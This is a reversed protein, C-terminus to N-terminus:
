RSLSAFRLTLIELGRVADGVGTKQRHDIAVSQAFLRAARKPGAKRALAIVEEKATWLRLEAAVANPSVGQQIGRACAHMKRALDMCLYAVPVTADRPGADLLTHLHKLAAEPNAALLRAQSKWVDEERTAGVMEAVLADSIEGGTDLAALSLKELEGHLRGLDDGVRDVLLAAAKTSIRVGIEKAHQTLWAPINAPSTCPIVAGCAEILSDLKGKHWTSARLVLTASESPAVAYREVIPRSDEKVFQDAADVIVMRYPQMLGLSRCDDLVDAPRASAGDHLAVDVGGHAEELAARIRRTLEAQLFLEPGALLIIRWRPDIEVASAGQVPKRSTRAAM